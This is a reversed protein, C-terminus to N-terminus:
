MVAGLRRYTEELDGEVVDVQRTAPRAACVQGLRDRMEPLVQRAGGAAELLAHADRHVADSSSDARQELRAATTELPESLVTELFGAHHERACGELEDIFEMRGLFQPVVVDHGEDLAVRAMAFALRRALPGAEGPRTDWAGLLGRVVDVDLVLALARDAAFRRALTSKGTGPLGNILLLIPAM